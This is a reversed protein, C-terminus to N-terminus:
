HALQLAIVDLAGIMANAVIRAAAAREHGRLFRDVWGGTHAAERRDLPMAKDPDPGAIRSEGIGGKHGIQVPIMIRRPCAIAFHDVGRTIIAQDDVIEHIQRVLGEDMGATDSIISHCLCRKVDGMTVFGGSDRAPHDVDLRRWKPGLLEALRAIHIAPLDDLELRGARNGDIHANRRGSGARRLAVAALSHAHNDDVGDRWCRVFGAMIEPGIHAIVFNM